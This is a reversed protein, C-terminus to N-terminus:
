IKIKKGSAINQILEQELEKNLHYSDIAKIREDRDKRDYNLWYPILQPKCGSFMGHTSEVSYPKWNSVDGTFDSNAFMKAMNKVESVDWISININFNSGFFMWDMNTVNSVDWNSIDGNFDSNMFMSNMTTVNSTDWHSIKGNFGSSMFLKSMDTINSVDIHNLDCFHGEIEMEAKILELLHEKNQAIIKAKM